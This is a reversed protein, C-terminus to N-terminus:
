PNPPLSERLRAEDLSGVSRWVEQGEGNFFIFTPTYEFNYYPGLEKGAEEQINVRLVLMRGTYEAEIADVMPKMQVCGMCYPSQFELLVPTGKGIQAQVNAAEGMLPTQVPRVYFYVVVLGLLLSLFALSDQLRTGRRFLAFALVLVLVLGLLLVSYHQMTALINM